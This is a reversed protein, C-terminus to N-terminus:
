KDKNLHMKNFPIIKEILGKYRSLKSEKHLLRQFNSQTNFNRLSISMKKSVRKKLKLKNNKLNHNSQYKKLFKNLQKM